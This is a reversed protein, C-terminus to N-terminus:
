RRHRLLTVAIWLRPLWIAAMIALWIAGGLLLADLVTM